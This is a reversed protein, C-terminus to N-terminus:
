FIGFDIQEFKLSYSIIHFKECLLKVM